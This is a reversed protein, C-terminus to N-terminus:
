GEWPCVQTGNIIRKPNDYMLTKACEEGFKKRIIEYAPNLDPTREGTPSHSDGAVATVLGNKVLWSATMTTRNLLGGTFSKANCQISVGSRVFDYARDPKSVFASYREPHALVVGKYEQCLTGIDRVLEEYRGGEAWEESFPLDLLVYGNGNITILGEERSVRMVKKSYRYECGQVLRIGIGLDSAAGNLKETMQKVEEEKPEYPGFFHPTATIIETGAKDANYLMKISQKINQAGDDFRPLIHSHIDAFKM